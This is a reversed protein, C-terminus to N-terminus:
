CGVVRVQLYGNVEKQDDWERERVEDERVMYGKGRAEGDDRWIGIEGSGDGSVEVGNGGCVWSEEGWIKREWSQGWDM